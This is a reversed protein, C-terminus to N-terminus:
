TSLNVQVKCLLSEGAYKPIDTRCAKLLNEQIHSLFSALLKSTVVPWAGGTTDEIIRQSFVSCIQTSM